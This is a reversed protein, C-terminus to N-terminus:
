EVWEGKEEHLYELVGCPKGDLWTWLRMLEDADKWISDIKVQNWRSEFGTVLYCGTDHKLVKGVLAKMEEANYPRQRAQSVNDWSLAGYTRSTDNNFHIIPASCGVTEIKTIKAYMADDWFYVLAGVKIWDPLINDKEVRQWKPTRCSGRLPCKDLSANEEGGTDFFCPPCPTCADCIWKAM